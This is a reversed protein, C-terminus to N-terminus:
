NMGTSGREDILRSRRGGEWDKVGNLARQIADILSSVKAHRHQHTKRLVGLIFYNILLDVVLNNIAM